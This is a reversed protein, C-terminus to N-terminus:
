VDFLIIAEWTGDDKKKVELDHYTVAKIDEGFREVKEGILETEIENDTLKKFVAEFYIEKNTQNLYLVESLFDVLLTPLDLSKIKIEREITEKKIEPKLSEAMGLMTNLFLEEKTRGFARIKLDAKHELIQYKEM